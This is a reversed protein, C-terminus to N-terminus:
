NEHTTNKLCSHLAAQWTMDNPYLRQWKGSDLKSYAPRQAKTPFTQSDATLLRIDLDSARFIEAAFDFWSCTGRHSYHYLGANNRLYAMSHETCFTLLDKALIHANTPSAVQDNVVQLVDKEAALRLMTKMFNKGYQSYLWSVRFIYYDAGSLMLAKEGEWKSQGYVSLPRCLDAETYPHKKQGDFVYDTSFHILLFGFEKATKGLSSLADRNVSYAAEQKTEAEEVNTYAACNIVIDFLSEQFFARLATHNSIDLDSRSLLRWSANGQRKFAEEFCKGLQGEAGLILYNKANEM